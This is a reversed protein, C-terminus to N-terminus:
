FADLSFSENETCESFPFDVVIRTGKGPSSDITFKSGCMRARQRLSQLGYHGHVPDLSTDFGVGDDEVRAVLRRSVAVTSGSVPSDAPMWALSVNISAPGAHQVANQVAQQLLRILCWAQKKPLIPWSPSPPQFRLVQGRELCEPEIARLHKELAVAVDEEGVAQDDLYGILSRGEALAKELHSLARLFNKRCSADEDVKTLGAEVQMRASVIWQLLGDHLEHGIWRYQSDDSQPGDSQRLERLETPELQKSSEMQGM